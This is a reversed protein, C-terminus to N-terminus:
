EAAEIGGETGDVLTKTWASGDPATETLMYDDFWSGLSLTRLASSLINVGNKLNL